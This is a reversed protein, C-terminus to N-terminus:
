SVPAWHGRAKRAKPHGVRCRPVWALLRLSVEYGMSSNSDVGLGRGTLFSRKLRRSATQGAVLQVRHKDQRRRLCSDARERVEEQRELSEWQICQVREFARRM